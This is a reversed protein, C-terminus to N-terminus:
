QRLGARGSSREPNASEARDIPALPFLSERSVPERGLTRLVRDPQAFRARNESRPFRRLAKHRDHPAQDFSDAPRSFILAPASDNSTKHHRLAWKRLARSEFAFQHRTEGGPRTSIRPSYRSRRFRLEPPPQHLCPAFCLRDRRQSFSEVFWDPLPPHF